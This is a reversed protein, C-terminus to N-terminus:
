ICRDCVFIYHPKRQKKTMYYEICYEALAGCRCFKPEDKYMVRFIEFDGLYAKNKRGERLKKVIQDCIGM